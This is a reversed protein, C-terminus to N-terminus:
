YKYGVVKYIKAELANTINQVTVIGASSSTGKPRFICMKEDGLTLSTGSIKVMAAMLELRNENATLDLFADTYTLNFGCSSAGNNWASASNYRVEGYSTGGSQAFTYFVEIMNYNAITDSLTITGHTGSANYYLQVGTMVELNTRAATATTGGTGGQSIPITKNNIENIAGVVTGKETTNLNSLDGVDESISEADNLANILANCESASELAESFDNGGEVALKLGSVKLLLNDGEFIQYECDVIGSVSVTQSTLVISATNSVTDVTCNNYIQTKDPKLAYFTVSKDTLDLNNGDTGKFSAVITRADVEGKRAYVIIYNSKWTEFSIENTVM